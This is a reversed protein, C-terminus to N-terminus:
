IGSNNETTAFCLPFDPVRTKTKKGKERFNHQPKCTDSKPTPHLTIIESAHHVFCLNPM